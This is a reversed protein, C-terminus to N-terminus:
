MPMTDRYQEVAVAAVATTIYTNTRQVICQVSGSRTQQSMRRFILFSCGPIPVLYVIWEKGHMNLNTSKVDDIITVIEM